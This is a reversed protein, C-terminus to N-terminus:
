AEIRRLRDKEEDLKKIFCSPPMVSNSACKLVLKKRGNIVEYLRVHYELYCPHFLNPYFFKAMYKKGDIIEEFKDALKLFM